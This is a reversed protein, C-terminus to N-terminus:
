PVVCDKPYKDDRLGKFVPQRMSGNATRTMFKVTCVLNLEIWIANENGSPMENFPQTSMGHVSKISKFDETSIGLTVHGKYILKKNLYQGLVISIVGGSKLIIWM